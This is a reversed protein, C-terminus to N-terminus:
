VQKLHLNKGVERLYLGPLNINITLNTQTSCKSRLSKDLSSFVLSYNNTNLIDVQFLLLWSDANNNTVIRDTESDLSAVYLAEQKIDKKCSSVAVFM